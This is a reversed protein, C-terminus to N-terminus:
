SPWGRDSGPQYLLLHDLQRRRARKVFDLASLPQELYSRFTEQDVEYWECYEVLQNRVPISVFTRGSESDVDLSFRHEQSVFKAELKM